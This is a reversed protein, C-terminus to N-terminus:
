KVPQDVIPQHRVEIAMGHRRNSAGGEIYGRGGFPSLNAAERSWIAHL